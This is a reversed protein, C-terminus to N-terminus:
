DFTGRQIFRGAAVIAGPGVALAFVALFGLVFVHPRLIAEIRAGFPAEVIRGIVFPAFSNRYNIARRIYLREKSVEGVFTATEKPQIRILPRFGVPDPRRTVRDLATVLEDASRSSEFTIRQFPLLLM